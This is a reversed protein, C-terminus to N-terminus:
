PTRSSFLKVRGIIAFIFGFGFLGGIFVIGSICLWVIQALAVLVAVIGMIKTNTGRYGM